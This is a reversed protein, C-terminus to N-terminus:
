GPSGPVPFYHAAAHYFSPLFCVLSCWSARHQSRACWTVQQFCTPTLVLSRCCLTCCGSALVGLSHVPLISLMEFALHFLVWTKSLMEPLRTMKKYWPPLLLTVESSQVAEAHLEQVKGKWFVFLCVFLWM